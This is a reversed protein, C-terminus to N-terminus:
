HAPSWLSMKRVNCANAHSSLVVKVMRISLVSVVQVENARCIDFISAMSHSKGHRQRDAKEDIQRRNAVVFLSLSIKNLFLYM